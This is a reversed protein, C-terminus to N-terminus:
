SMMFQAIQMQQESSYNDRKIAKEIEQSVGIYAAELAMIESQLMRIRQKRLEPHMKSDNMTKQLEAMKEMIQQRIERLRKLLTKMLDPLDSDDIDQNNTANRRQSQMKSAASLDVHSDVPTALADTVAEPVAASGKHSKHQTSTDLQGAIVQQVQKVLM